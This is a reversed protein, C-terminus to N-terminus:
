NTIHRVLELIQPISNISVHAQQWVAPYLPPGFVVYGKVHHPPLRHSLVEDLNFTAWQEPERNPEPSQQGFYRVGSQPVVAMKLKSIKSENEDPRPAQAIWIKVSRKRVFREVPHKARDPCM